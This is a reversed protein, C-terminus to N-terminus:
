VEKKLLVLLPAKPAASVRCSKASPFRRPLQTGLFGQWSHSARPQGSMSDQEMSQQATCIVKQQLAGEESFSCSHGDSLCSLPM